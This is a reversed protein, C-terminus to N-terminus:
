PRQLLVQAPVPLEDRIGHERKTAESAVLSFLDQSSVRFTFYADILALPKDGGGDARHVGYRTHARGLAVGGTIAAELPRAAASQPSVVVVGPCDLLKLVEEFAAFGSTTRNLAGLLLQACLHEAAEPWGPRGAAAEGARLGAAIAAVAAQYGGQAGSIEVGNVILNDRNIDKEDQRCDLGKVSLTIERGLVLARPLAELRQEYDALSSAGGLACPTAAELPALPPAADPGFVDKAPLGIWKGGSEPLGPPRFPGHAVSAVLAATNFQLMEVEAIVGHLDAAMDRIATQAALFVDTDVSADLMGGAGRKLAAKLEDHPAQVLTNRRLGIAAAERAEVSELLDAELDAETLCAWVDDPNEAEKDDQGEISM